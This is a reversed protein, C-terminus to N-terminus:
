RQDDPHARLEAGIEQLRRGLKMHAIVLQLKEKPSLQRLLEYYRAEVNSPTDILGFRGKRMDALICPSEGELWTYSQSPRM